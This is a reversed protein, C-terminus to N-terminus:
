EPRCAWQSEWQRRRQTSGNFASIVVDDVFYDINRLLTYIYYLSTCCMKQKKKLAIWAHFQDQMKGDENGGRCKQEQM